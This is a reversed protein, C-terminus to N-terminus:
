HKNKYNDKENYFVNVVEEVALVMPELDKIAASDLPNMTPIAMPTEDIQGMITDKFSYNIKSNYNYDVTLEKEGLYNETQIVFKSDKPIQIDKELEISVLIKNNFVEMKKVKGIKLGKVTLESETDLGDVNDFLLYLNRNNNSCSLMFVCLLALTFKIISIKHNM